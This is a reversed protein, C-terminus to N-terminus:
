RRHRDRVRRSERSRKVWERRREGRVRADVRARQYLSERQLKRWSAFRRESLQGGDVAALVACGPEAEHACDSFRCWAALEDVDAFVRGVAAAAVNVGISRLGPTDMLVGGDQLCVLERTVTTHRGKGDTRLARVAMVQDAVLANVLSSKGAGSAGLLVGTRGAGIQAHVADVGTGEVASVAHVPAEPASRVVDQLLVDLGPGALDAKSLVVVPQAGSEWALALLREVRGLDPDPVAAEVLLAVDVNAALPQATSKGPAVDLRQVLTRRRLVAEVTVREDPWDRLGVWDGTCPPLALAAAGFTARVQGSASLALCGGKDVRSLRAAVLDAAGLAVFEAAREADWGLSALSPASMPATVERRTGRPEGYGAGTGSKVQKEVPTWM